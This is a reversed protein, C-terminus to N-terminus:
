NSKSETKSSDTNGNESGKDGDGGEGTTDPQVGNPNTIILLIIGYVIPRM